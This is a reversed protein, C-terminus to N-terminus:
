EHREGFLARGIRVHTSGESIAVEFDDTMGMSLGRVQHQAGLRALERFIPRSDEPDASNHGIVMLGALRTHEKAKAQAALAALEAPAIGGQSEAGTLNVQLFVDIPQTAARDIAALLGPSDVSHIAHFGQTVAKVKNRQLQGIFHWRIRAETRLAEVKPLAEQVRNEGFDYIGCRMAFQIGALDVTKSAAVVTIDAISRGALACASAIRERVNAVSEEISRAPASM